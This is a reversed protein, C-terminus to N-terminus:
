KSVIYETFKYLGSNTAAISLAANSDVRTLDLKDHTPSWARHEIKDDDVCQEVEDKVHSPQGSTVGESMKAPHEISESSSLPVQPAPTEPTINVPTEAPLEFTAPTAAPPEDPISVPEQFKQEIIAGVPVQALEESSISVPVQAPQEFKVKVPQEISIKTHLQAPPEFDSNVFTQALLKPQNIVPQDFSTVRVSSHCQPKISNDTPSLAPQGIKDMPKPGDLPRKDVVFSLEKEVGKFQKSVDKEANVFNMGVVNSGNEKSEVLSNGVFRKSCNLPLSSAPIKESGTSFEADVKQQIDCVPIPIMPKKNGHSSLNLIELDGDEHKYLKSVVPRKGISCDLAQEGGVNPTKMVSYDTAEQVMEKKFRMQTPLFGPSGTDYNHKTHAILDLPLTPAVQRSSSEIGPEIKIPRTITSSAAARASWAQSPQNPKNFSEYYNSATVAQFYPQQPVVNRQMQNQGMHSMFMQRTDNTVATGQRASPMKQLINRETPFSPRMMAAEHANVSSMGSQLGHMYRQQSQELQSLREPRPAINPYQRFFPQNSQSPFTGSEVKLPPVINGYNIGSQVMVPSRGRSYNQLSGGRTLSQSDRIVTQRYMENASLPRKSNCSTMNLYDQSMRPHVFGPPVSSASQRSQRPRDEPLLPTTFDTEIFAPEGGTTYQLGQTALFNAVPTPRQNM